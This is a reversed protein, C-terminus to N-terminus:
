LRLAEQPVTFRNVHDVNFMEIRGNHHHLAIVRIENNISFFNVDFSHHMKDDTEIEVIM